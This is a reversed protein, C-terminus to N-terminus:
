DNMKFICKVGKSGRASADIADQWGAESLEFVRLPPLRLSGEAYWQLIDRFMAAAAPSDRPGNRTYWSSVWFGRVTLDSFIFPSVPLVLPRRAMGGYNVLVANPGLLRTMAGAMEGGVCNLGLRALRGGFKREVESRVREPAGVLEEASVVLGGPNLALLEAQLQGYEAASRNASRVISVVRIGQITAMQLVYRGVASNAGNQLVVDGAQLAVFDRLLRYATPPNVILTAAAEVGLGDRRPIKMFDTRQGRAWRRWCGFLPRGPLVWDGPQLDGTGPAEVVEAVGENGAVAPFAAPRLPYGGEIQSLDSPNIPSALFKVLIPGKGMTEADRSLKVTGSLLLLVRV